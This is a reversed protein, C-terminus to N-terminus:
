VPRFWLAAVSTYFTGFWSRSSSRAIKITVNRSPPDIAATFYQWTGQVNTQQALGGNVYLQAYPTESIQVSLFILVSVYDVREKFTFNKEIYAAANEPYGSLIDVWGFYGFSRVEPDPPPISPFSGGPVDTGKFDEFQPNETHWYTWGYWSWDYRLWNYNLGFIFPVLNFSFPLKWDFGAFSFSPSSFTYDGLSLSLVPVAIRETDKLPYIIVKDGVNPTEIPLFDKGNLVIGRDGIDTM